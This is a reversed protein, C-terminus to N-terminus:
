SKLKSNILRSWKDALTVEDRVSDGNKGNYFTITLHPKEPNKFEIQLDIQTTVRQEGNPTKIREDDKSVRCKNVESLDVFQTEDQGNKRKLYLIQKADSDIGIAYSDRWIDFQSLKVGNNQAIENFYATFKKTTHKKFYEFYIVPVIFFSLAIIGIIISSLDIDM